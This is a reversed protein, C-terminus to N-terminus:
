LLDIHGEKQAYGATQYAVYAREGHDVVEVGPDFAAEVIALEVRPIELSCKLRGFVPYHPVFLNRRFASSHGGTKMISLM